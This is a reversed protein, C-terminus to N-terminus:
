PKISPVLAALERQLELIGGRARNSRLNNFGVGAKASVLMVPLASPQRRLADSFDSRVQLVRRALDVQTVLDCKTLCIQIPPLQLRKRKQRESVNLVTSDGLTTGAGDSLAKKKEGSNEELPAKLGDQLMELFDYDARKLGHRADILFLIRKLSKGRGLVYSKMLDKWDESRDESAYAFGFGPLDAISLSVKGKNKTSLNTIQSSLQYFTIRRTEGPTPSCIAKIGKGMKNSNPTKGRIYKKNEAEPSFQNGYILANLLTSKGVNSRGVIAVEPLGKSSRPMEEGTSGVSGLVKVPLKRISIGESASESEEKTHSSTSFPPPPIYANKNSANWNPGDEQSDTTGISRKRRDKRGTRSERENFFSAEEDESLLGKAGRSTNTQKQKRKRKKKASLGVGVGRIYSLISPNVPISRFLARNSKVELDDHENGNGRDIGNEKKAYSIINSNCFCRSPGFFGIPHSFQKKLTTRTKSSLLLPNRRSLNNTLSQIVKVGNMLGQM